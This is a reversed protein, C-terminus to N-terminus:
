IALRIRFTIAFSVKNAFLRSKQFHEPVPYLNCVVEFLKSIQFNVPVCTILDILSEELDSVEAMLTDLIKSVNESRIHFTPSKLMNQIFNERSNTGCEVQLKDAVAQVRCELENIKSLAKM